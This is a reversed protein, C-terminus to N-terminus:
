GDIILGKSMKDDMLALLRAKEKPNNKYAGLAIAKHTEKVFSRTIPKKDEQGKNAPPKGGAGPKPLGLSEEDNPTDQPKKPNKEKIFDNFHEAVAKFDSKRYSGMMLDYAPHGSIMRNAAWQLFESGQKNMARWDGRKDVFQDMAQDFGQGETREVRREVSVSRTELKSLRDELTSIKADRTKIERRMEMKTLKTLPEDQFQTVLSQYEAEDPEPQPPEKRKEARLESIDAKLDAVQAAFEKSSQTLFSVEANYKGELTLRRQKEEEYLVRYDPEEHREEPHEEHREEPDTEVPPTEESPDVSPKGEYAQKRIRESLEAQRAVASPIAM